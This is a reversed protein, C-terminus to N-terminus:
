SSIFPDHHYEYKHNIIILRKLQGLTLTVLDFTLTLYATILNKQSYSVFLYNSKLSILLVRHPRMCPRHGQGKVKHGQGLTLKLMGNIRVM